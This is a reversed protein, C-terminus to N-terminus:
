DGRVVAHVTREGAREFRLRLAVSRGAVLPQRLGIFMLHRGGPELTVREGAPLELSAVQQMRLAGGEGAVIEHMEMYETLSSDTAVEVLRDGTTSELTLYAAGMTAGRPSARAWADDLLLGEAPATPPALADSAAGDPGPADGTLRRLDHAMDAASTGFPWQLIVRGAPDVVYTTATHSVDVHGDAERTVTSTARFATQARGLQDQTEPRLAHAGQEFFSGLYDLMVQASDRTPDVTVFAVELDRGGGGLMAVARKTESLTTPCIDPCNVFGFFVMLLGGPRARMVFPQTGGSPLVEPLSVGAVIVPSTPVEGRFDKAGRPTCTAAFAALLLVVSWRTPRMHRIM